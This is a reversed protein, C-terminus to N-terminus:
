PAVQKMKKQLHDLPSEPRQRAKALRALERKTEAIRREIGSRGPALSQVRYYVNMARVLERRERRLDGLAILCRANDPFADTLERLVVLADDLRKQGRYFDALGLYADPDRPASALALRYQREARAAQGTRAYLSALMRRGESSAPNCKLAQEAHQVAGALDDKDKLLRVLDWLYRPEGPHDRAWTKLLAIAADRDGARALSRACRLRLDRDGGRSLRCAHRYEDRALLDMGRRRFLDGLRARNAADHPVIDRLLQINTPGVGLGEVIEDWRAPYEQLLRRAVALAEQVEGAAGRAMVLSLRVEFDAPALAAAHQIQRIGAQIRRAARAEPVSRHRASQVLAWGLFHRARSDFPALWAAAAYESLVDEGSERVPRAPEPLHELANGLRLRVQPDRPALDRARELIRAARQPRERLITETQATLAGARAQRWGLWVLGACCAIVLVAVGRAALPWDLRSRWTRHAAAEQSHEDGQPRRSSGAPFPDEDRLLSSALSLCVAALTAALLGNSPIRLNFDAVSHVAIAVFGAASGALLLRRLRSRGSRRWAAWSAAFISGMFTLGAVLGIPGMEAFTEVYDNEAHRYWLPGSRGAVLCSSRPTYAPSASGFAGVGVGFPLFDVGMRSFPRWLRVRAALDQPSRQLGGALPDLVRAAFWGAGAAGMLVVTLLMRVPWAKGHRGGAAVLFLMVALAVTLAFLGGRSTSMIAAIMMVPVTTAVVWSLVRAYPIRLGSGRGFSAAASRGGPGSRSRGWYRITFALALTVPIGMALYGGFHNENVFPGFPRGGYRSQWFGYIKTPSLVSQAIGHVSLAACTLAVAIAVGILERRRRFHALVLLFMGVYAALTLGEQVGAAPQISITPWLASAASRQKPRPGSAPTTSASPLVDALESALTRRAATARPALAAAVGPPLPLVQLLAVLLAIGACAVAVCTPAGADKGKGGSTPSRFRALGQRVQLASRAAWVCVLSLVCTVLIMRPVAHVSGFAFPSSVLVLLTAAQTV